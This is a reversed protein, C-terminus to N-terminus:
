AYVSVESTYRTKAERIAAQLDEEVTSKNFGVLVALSELDKTDDSCGAPRGLGAAM